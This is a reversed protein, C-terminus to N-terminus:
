VVPEGQPAPVALSADLEEKTMPTGSPADESCGTVDMPGKKEVYIELVEMISGDMPLTVIDGVKKDRIVAQVEPKYYGFPLYSKSPYMPSGDAKKVSTVVLSGETVTEANLLTGDEVGKAVNKGQQTAEDELLKIRIGKANENVKEIGVVQAIAQQVISADNLRETMEDFSNRMIQALQNHKNIVEQLQDALGQRAKNNGLGDQKKSLQKSLKSPRTM